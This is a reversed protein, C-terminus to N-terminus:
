QLVGLKIFRGLAHILASAFSAAKLAVNFLQFM